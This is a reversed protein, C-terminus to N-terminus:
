GGGFWGQRRARSAEDVGGEDVVVVLLGSGQSGDVRRGAGLRGHVVWDGDVTVGPVDV